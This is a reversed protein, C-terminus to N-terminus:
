AELDDIFYKSQRNSPRGPFNSQMDLHQVLFPVSMWYKVGIQDLGYAIYKDIPYNWPEHLKEYFYPIFGDMIRKSCLAKCVEKPYYNCQNWAFRIGSRYESKLPKRSCASEFMSVVENEHGRLVNFLREKFRKCLQVDDEFIVIGDYEDELEFLQVHKQFVNERNAMVVVLEPLVLKMKRVNQIRQENGESCLVAYKLRM